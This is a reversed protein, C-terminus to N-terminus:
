NRLSLAWANSRRIWAEVEDETDEANLHSNVHQVRLRATDVAQLIQAAEMWLDENSDPDFTDPNDLLQVLGQATYSSDTWIVANDHASVLWRLVAMAATLEARQVDQQLGQLPGSLCLQQHTASIVAWSALALDPANPFWCSGDTFFDVWGADTQPLMFDYKSRDPLSVLARKRDATFPVRSPLLHETLATSCLPWIQLAYAHDARIHELAPCTCCRHAISDTEGCLHCLSGKVLDYKGQQSGSLFVGERLANIRSVQLSDLRAENRSPPWALGRLGDFDKRHEVERALRQYWADALRRKLEASSCTLLDFKCHDHDLIWPPAHVYWALLHFIELLKSFPGSLLKGDFTDMFNRWLSHMDPCKKAFRRFDFVTRHVQFYAPDSQLSDTLLSLRLGPHAGALGFGLAKVAQTRLTSIHRFPMLSIGIAHFAKSWFAQRLVHYKLTLPAASRKLKAWM